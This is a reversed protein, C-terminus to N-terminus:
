NHTAFRYGVKRETHIYRRHQAPERLKRRLHSIYVKLYHYEKEYSPGWVQRLVKERSLVQNAHKFLFALLRSEIRSLRQREGKVVVYDADLDFHLFGDDYTRRSPSTQHARRLHARIRAVLEDGNFPKTVYDDAGDKLRGLKENVDPLATLMLIPMTNSIERLQKLTERGDKHPMRIDLLVLDPRHDSTTKLCEAGDKAQLVRFGEEELLATISQRIDPEDDTVLITPAKSM